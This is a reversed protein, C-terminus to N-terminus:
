RVYITNGLKNQYKEKYIERDKMKLEGFIEQGSTTAMKTKYYFGGVSFNIKNVAYFLYDDGNWILLDSPIFRYKEKKLFMLTGYYKLRKKAVRIKLFKSIQNVEPNVGIIGINSDLLLLVKEIISTDFLIDDNCIAIYDSKANRVGLNWSPNVYLNEFQNLVRVKEFQVLNLGNKNGNDIIIIELVSSSINLNSILEFLYKSQHLTPIIVSIKKNSKKFNILFSFYTEKIFFILNQYIVFLLSKLKNKKM